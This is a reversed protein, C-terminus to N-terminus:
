KIACQAGLVDVARELAPDRGDLLDELTPEVKIAPEVGKGDYRTGDPRFSAMSSLSIHTGSHELVIPMTRGSGGGSATGVTTVNPLLMMAGLFIDTASYCAGDQLVTVPKDSLDVLAQDPGIVLSHWHSFQGEPLEWDPKFHDAVADIAARENESWRAADRPYLFRAELHDADFRPHLRYAAVNCVVPTADPAILCPMILRLADRSGGGNGRVDIVLGDAEEAARLAQAIVDLHSPDASAAFTPLRLVVFSRQDREMRDWTARRATWTEAPQRSALVTMERTEAGDATQLVVELARRHPLDLHHRFFGAHGLRRRTIEWKLQATGDPALRAAVEVWREIPIGDISAVQPYGQVYPRTTEHRLAVVKGEVAHLAFPLCVEGLLRNVGRVRTHGDGFRCLLQAIQLQFDAVHIRGPMAARISRIAREYDVDRLTLYSYQSELAAQLQELDQSAQASDLFVGESEDDFFRRVLDRDSEHVQDAEQALSALVFQGVTMLIVILSRRRCPSPLM